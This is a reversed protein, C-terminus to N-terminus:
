LTKLELERDMILTELVPHREGMPQLVMHKQIILDVPFGEELVKLLLTNATHELVV